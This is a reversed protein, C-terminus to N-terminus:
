RGYAGLPWFATALFPGSPAVVLSNGHWAVFATKGLLQRYSGLVPPSPWCMATLTRMREESKLSSVFMWYFPFVVVLLLATLIAYAVPGQARGLVRPSM